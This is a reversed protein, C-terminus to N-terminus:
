REPSPLAGSVRSGAPAESLHLSTLAQLFAILSAKDDASLHLPQVLPSLAAGPSGGQDYYDVVEALTRFRGDHMYPASLAINRLTPTRLAGAHRPLGTLAALGRSEGLAGTATGINHFSNDTFLAFGPGISHCRACGADGMFHRLGRWEESNMADKQGGFWALDFRSDGATLMREYAALAACLGARTVAAKGFAAPWLQGYPARTSVLTVLAEASANMEHPDFLPLAAQSELSTARGDSMLRLLYATNLLSPAKAALRGQLPRVIGSFARAPEHCTACSMSGDRSLRPDHFLAKGLAVM